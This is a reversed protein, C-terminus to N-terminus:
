SSGLGDRHRLDGPEEALARPDLKRFADLAAAAVIERDFLGRPQAKASM